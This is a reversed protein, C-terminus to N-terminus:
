AAARRLGEWLLWAGFFVLAGGLARLTWRYAAGRLFGRSRNVLIALVVKSGCLLLYFGAIFGAASSLDSRAAQLVMPGGATIWFLYVHPNLLNIAFATRLSRPSAGAGSEPAEPALISSVGLWALYLGGAASISALAPGTGALRSLGALTLAVVPADTLVPAVAVRLGERAGFRLTQTVLFAM